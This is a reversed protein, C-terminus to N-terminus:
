RQVRVVTTDTKRAGKVHSVIKVYRPDDSADLRASFRRGSGSVSGDGFDGGFFSDVLDSPDHRTKTGYVSFNSPKADRDARWTVVIEKGARRAVADLVRPRPADPLRRLNLTVTKAKARRAGPAGYRLFLTVPGGKLTALPAYVGSLQIRREGAHTLSVTDSPALFGGALQVRVDCAASCRVTFRLDENPALVRRKAGILRV